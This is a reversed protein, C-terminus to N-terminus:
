LFSLGPSGAERSDDVVRIFLRRKSSLLYSRALTPLYLYLKFSARALLISPSFAALSTTLLSVPSIKTLSPSTISLSVARAISFEPITVTSILLILESPM